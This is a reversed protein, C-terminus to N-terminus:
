TVWSKWAMVPLSTSPQVGLKPNGQYANAVLNMVVDM